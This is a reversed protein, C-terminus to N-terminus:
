QGHADPAPSTGADPAEIPKLGPRCRAGPDRDGGPQQRRAKSLLRSVHAKVTAESLSLSAAVEANSAGAGTATAVDSVVVVKAVLAVRIGVATAQGAPSPSALLLCTLVRITNLCPL